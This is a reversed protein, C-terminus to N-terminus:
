LNSWTTYEDMSAFLGYGGGLAVCVECEPMVDMAVGIMTPWHEGGEDIYTGAVESMDSAHYADEYSLFKM